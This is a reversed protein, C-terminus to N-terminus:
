GSGFSAPRLCDLVKVERPKIRAQSERLSVQTVLPIACFVLSHVPMSQCSVVLSSVQETSKVEENQPIPLKTRRVGSEEEEKGAGKRFIIKM